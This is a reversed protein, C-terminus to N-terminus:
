CQFHYIIVTILGKKNVGVKAKVDVVCIQLSLIGNQQAPDVELM